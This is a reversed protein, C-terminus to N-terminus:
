YGTRGTGSWKGDTRGTGKYDERDWPKQEDGGGGKSGSSKGNKSAEAMEQQIKILADKATQNDKDITLVQKYMGVATRVDKKEYAEAALEIYIETAKQQNPKEYQETIAAKHEPTKVMSIGKRAELAAGMYAQAARVKCANLLATNRKELPKEMEKQYPEMAKQAQEVKVEIPKVIRDYNPLEKLDGPAVAEAPKDKWPVGAEDAAYATMSMAFLGVLVALTIRKM